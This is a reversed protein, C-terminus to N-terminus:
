SNVCRDWESVNGRLDLFLTEDSVFPITGVSKVDSKVNIRLRPYDCVRVRVRFKMRVRVGVGVTVTVRM